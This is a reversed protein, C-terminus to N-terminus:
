KKSNKLVKAMDLLAQKQEETLDVRGSLLFTCGKYNLNRDIVYTVTQPYQKILNELTYIEIEGLSLLYMIPDIDLDSPADILLNLVARKSLLESKTYPVGDWKYSVGELFSKLYTDWRAIEWYSNLSYLNVKKLKDM